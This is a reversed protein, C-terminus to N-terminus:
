EDMASPAARVVFVFPQGFAEPTGEPRTELNTIGRHWVFVVRGGLLPPLLDFLLQGAHRSWDDDDAM